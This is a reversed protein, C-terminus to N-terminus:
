VIRVSGSGVPKRAPVRSSTPSPWNQQSTKHLGGGLNLQPLPKQVVTRQPSSQRRKETRCTLVSPEGFPVELDSGNIQKLAEASVPKAAELAYKEAEERALFSLSRVLKPPLPNSGLMTMWDNATEVDDAKLELMEYWAQRGTGKIMVVLEEPKDGKRASITSTSTPPFLLWKGTDDVECFLVDGGGNLGALNDRLIIEIRCDIRQGTTHYLTMTFCDKAKVNRSKDVAIGSLITLTRVDRAKTADVNAAAEDELRGQEEQTRKRALETLGEYMIVVKETSATKVIAHIDALSKALKKVRVLPRKLLYAVDVKKGDATIVDGNQDRPMGKDIEANDGDNTALNVVVDQFGLRWAVLYDSYAKQASRAWSCFTEVRDTPIRTHFVKLRELAIGMEVVPRTVDKENTSSTFLGAATNVSSKSLVSQLLVPIVGDVLTRLERIYKAEDEKICDLAEQTTLTSVGAQDGRRSRRKRLSKDGRPLSLQSMLDEHTTLRRQLGNADQKLFDWTGTQTDRDREDIQETRSSFTEVSAITSLRRNGTLPCPRQPFEDPKPKKQQHYSYSDVIESVPSLPSQVKPVPAPEPEPKKEKEVTSKDKLRSSKAGRRKLGGPSQEHGPPLVDKMPVCGTFTADEAVYPPTREADRSRRKRRRSPPTIERPLKEWIKNPDEAAQAKAEASVRRRTRPKLPPPVEVPAEATDVFPDDPQEELWAEISPLRNSITPPSETKSFMEKTKNFISGKRSKLNPRADSSDPGNGLTEAYKSRRRHRGDDEEPRISGQPDSSYSGSKDKAHRTFRRAVDSDVNSQTEPDEYDYPLQSEGAPPTSTGYIERLREENARRSSRAERMRRRREEREAEAPSSARHIEDDLESTRSERRPTVNSSRPEKTKVKVKWNTDSIVRKRPTSSSRIERVWDKNDRDVPRGSRKKAATQDPEPKRKNSLHPSNERSEAREVDSAPNSLISVADPAPAAPAGQSQWQRIRDQVSNADYLGAPNSSNNKPTAPASHRNYSSRRLTSPTLPM